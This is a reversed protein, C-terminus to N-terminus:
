RLGTNAQAVLSNTRIGAGISQAIGQADTAQTVIEIKDINVESTTTNGGVGMASGGSSAYLRAAGAARASAEANAQAPREYYRSAIDGAESATKANRLREGAAQENGKRLEYDAFAIQEELSSGRIDKGYKAKFAAQRDPHWQGIGYAQGNDGVASPDFKSEREFNAALGAAQEKSWGKAMLSSIVAAAGTGATSPTKSGESPGFGTRRELDAAEGENLSGSYTAAAAGIGLFRLAGLMGTATVTSAIGALATAVRALAAALAIVESTVKAIVLAGLIVKWGGFAEAVDNVATALQVLAKAADEVWAAIEERHAAIWDALEQLQQLWRELVPAMTLVIQTATASVSDKFDLLKIRLEEARKANAETVVANKMQADVLAQIAAPGQKFLNFQDESIGLEQAALAARAPSKDYLEKIIRSRELLYANGTQYAAFNGGYKGFAAINAPQIGSQYKAVELQSEKIQATIGEASGGAREAAKQWATLRQTSMELNPALRGLSAAGLVTNSIFDKLGVGATFVGFFMLAENRMKSFFQAAQKGSAEIENAIKQAQKGTEKFEVGAAKAGKKFERPDLGLSVVFADIVTAM